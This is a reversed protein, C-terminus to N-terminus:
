LDYVNYFASFHFNLYSLYLVETNQLGITEQARVGRQLGTTLMYHRQSNQSPQPCHPSDARRASPVTLRSHPIGHSNRPQVFSLISPFHPQSFLVPHTHFSPVRSQARAPLSRPSERVNECVGPLSARGKMQWALGKLARSVTNRCYRPLQGYRSFWLIM